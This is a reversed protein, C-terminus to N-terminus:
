VKPKHIFFYYESKKGDFGEQLVGNIVLDGGKGIYQMQSHSAMAKELSQHNVDVCSDYKVQKGDITCLFSGKDERIKKM